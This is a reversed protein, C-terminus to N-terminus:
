VKNQILLNIDTNKAVFEIIEPDSDNNLHMIYFPKKKNTIRENWKVKVKIKDFLQKNELSEIVISSKKSLMTYDMLDPYKKYLYLKNVIKKFEKHNEILSIDEKKNENYYNKVFVANEKM